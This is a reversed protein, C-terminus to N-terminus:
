FKLEILRGAEVFGLSKYLGMAAANDTRAYLVPTQNQEFAKSACAAAVDKGFGRGRMHPPVYILNLRCLGCFIPILMGMAVVLGDEIELCYIKKGAILARAAEEGDFETGLAEIYFDMIWTTVEPIDAAAPYILQGRHTYAAADPMYFAALEWVDVPTWPCIETAWDAAVLGTIDNAENKISNYFDMLHEPKCSDEAYLWLPKGPYQLAYLGPGSFIQRAGSELMVNYLLWSKGPLKNLQCNM